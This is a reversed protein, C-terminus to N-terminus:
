PGHVNSLVVLPGVASWITFKFVRTTVATGPELPRNEGFHDGSPRYRAASM